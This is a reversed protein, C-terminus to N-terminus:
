SSDRQSTELGRGVMGRLSRFPLLNEASQTTLEPDDSTAVIQEINGDALEVSGNVAQVHVVSKGQRSSEFFDQTTDGLSYSKNPQSSYQATGYQWTDLKSEASTLTFLSVDPRGTSEIVLRRFLSADITVGSDNQLVAITTNISLPYSSAVSFSLRPNHFNIAACNIKTDQTTSQSLGKSTLLNDNAYELNQVWSGAESTIM